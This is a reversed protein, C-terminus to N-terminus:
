EAKDARFNVTGSAGSYVVRVNWAGAAGTGTTFTGDEALSRSYVQVGAADRIVLTASGANISASQDVTARTGTNQWTYSQTGSFNEIDTIQYQLNDTANVIEPERGPSTSDSGCAAVLVVGAIVTRRLIGSALARM